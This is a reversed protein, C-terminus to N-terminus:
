GGNTKTVKVDFDHLNMKDKLEQSIADLRVEDAAEKNAAKRQAAQAQKEGTSASQYNDPRM